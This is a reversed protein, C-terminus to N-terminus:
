DQLALYADTIVDDRLMDYGLSPDFGFAFTRTMNQYDLNGRNLVQAPGNSSGEMPNWSVPQVRGKMGRADDTIVTPGLDTTPKIPLHEGADDFVVMEPLPEGPRRPLVLDNGTRALVTDGVKDMGDAITRVALTVFHCFHFRCHKAKHIGKQMVYKFCTDKHEHMQGASISLRYDESFADRWAAAEKLREEDTVPAAAGMHGLQRYRPQRCLQAGTLPLAYFAKPEQWPLLRSAHERVNHDVLQDVTAVLPRRKTPDRVDGELAGDSRRDAQHKHLLPTSQPNHLKSSDDSLFLPLIAASDLQTSQVAALVHEQWVRLM